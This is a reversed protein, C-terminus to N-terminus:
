ALGARHDDVREAAGPEAGGLSGVRGAAGHEAQQGGAVVQNAGREILDLLGADGQARSLVLGDQEVALLWVALCGNVPSYVIVNGRDNLIINAWRTAIDDQMTTVAPQPTSDPSGASSDLSSTLWSTSAQVPLPGPTNSMTHPTPRDEVPCSDM